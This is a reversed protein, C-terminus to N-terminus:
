PSHADSFLQRAVLAADDARALGVVQGARVVAAAGLEGTLLGSSALADDPSLAPPRDAVAGVQARSTAGLIADATVVGVYSGDASVVPFERQATSWLGAILEEVPTDSSVCVPERIMVDGVRLDKVREHLVAAAEEALSGFYLFVGIVLLWLNFLVGAAIMAGAFLRGVRAAAHTARERGSRQELLARLVRGGDLPLAPVLNFAGLLLNVWSLRALFGGSYLAPPWLSVGALAAMGAFSAALAISVLPGAIAIRLEVRPDEPSRALKSIGGIPLLEIELTPIGNRRAVLSHALEHIVVCSFLAVLWTFASALGPGEEATAGLAVLAVLILFTAHIRIQIGAISVVRMSMGRRAQARVSRSEPSRTGRWGGTSPPVPPATNTATM